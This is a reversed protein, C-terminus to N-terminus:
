NSEVEFSLCGISSASFNFLFQLSEILSNEIEIKKTCNNLETLEVNTVAIKSSFIDSITDISPKSEQIDTRMSKTLNELTSNSAELGASIVKLNESWTNFVVHVKFAENNKVDIFDQLAQNATNYKEVLADIESDKIIAHSATSIAGTFFVGVIVAAFPSATGGSVVVVVTLIVTAILIYGTASASNSRGTTASLVNSGAEAKNQQLTALKEKYNIFGPYDKNLDSDISRLDQEIRESVVKIKKIIENTKVPYLSIRKDELNRTVTQTAKKIETIAKKARMAASTVPIRNGVIPRINPLEEQLRKMNDVFINYPTSLEAEILRLENFLEAIESSALSSLTSVVRDIDQVYRLEKAPLGITTNPDRTLNQECAGAMQPFLYALYLDQALKANNSYTNQTEAM